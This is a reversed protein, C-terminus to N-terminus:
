RDMMSLGNKDFGELGCPESYITNFYQVFVDGSIVPVEFGVALHESIFVLQPLEPQMGKAGQLVFHVPLFAM